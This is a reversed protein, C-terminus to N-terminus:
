SIWAVYLPTCFTNLVATGEIEKEPYVLIILAHLTGNFLGIFHYGVILNKKFDKFKQSTKLAM